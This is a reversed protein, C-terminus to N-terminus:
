DFSFLLRLFVNCNVQIFFLNYFSFSPFIQAKLSKFQVSFHAKKFELGPDVYCELM